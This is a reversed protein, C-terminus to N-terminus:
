PIRLDLDRAAVLNAEPAAPLRDRALADRQRAVRRPEGVLERRLADGVGDVRAPQGGAGRQAGEAPLAVQPAVLVLELGLNM